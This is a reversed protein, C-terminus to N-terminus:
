KKAAEEIEKTTKENTFSVVCKTCVEAQFEGLYVGFMNEKIKGKKLSGKECVPCKM